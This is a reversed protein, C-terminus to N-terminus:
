FNFRLEVVGTTTNVSEVTFWNGDTTGNAVKLVGGGAPTLQAGIALTGLNISGLPTQAAIVRGDYLTKSATNKLWIKTGKGSVVQAYQGAPVTDYVDTGALAQDVGQSQIREYVLVGANATSQGAAAAVVQGPNAPDHVVPAGMKHTSGAATKLRGNRVVNTFDRFGFNRSYSM